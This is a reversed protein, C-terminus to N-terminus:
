SDLIMEDIVKEKLDQGWFSFLKDFISQRFKKIIVKHDQYEPKLQFVKESIHKGSNVNDFIDLNILSLLCSNLNESEIDPYIGNIKELLSDLNYNERLSAIAGTIKLFDESDIIKIRPHGTALISKYNEPSHLFHEDLFPLAEFNDFDVDELTLKTQFKDSVVIKLKTNRSAYQLFQIFKSLGVKSPDFDNIGYKFAEKIVSLHIGTHALERRAEKDEAFWNLINESQKIIEERKHTSLRELSQSMKLVLPNTIKLNNELEQKEENDENEDNNNSEEPDNIGIFYDCISELIQNTSSKYGCGIVYKGYEHLKRAVASFGGDGSVIVFIDINNRLYALDIADVALQIDAANKKQYFSFGFIQVPEIGLENIDRKMVSLRSDSWNAYAKQVLIRKVISIKKVEKFISKLSISNIYNKPMNYGKLLNEVDYFIATNGNM